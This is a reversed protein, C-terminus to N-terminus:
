MAVHLLPQGLHFKGCIAAKLNTSVARGGNPGLFGFIEGTEVHLDVGRVAEVTGSRGRYTKVLGRAEVAPATSPDSQMTQGAANTQTM